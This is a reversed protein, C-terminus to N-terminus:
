IIALAYLQLSKKHNQDYKFTETSSKVHQMHSHHTDEHPKQNFLHYQLLAMLQHAAILIIVIILSTVFKCFM